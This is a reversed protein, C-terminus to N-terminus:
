DDDLTLDIVEIYKDGSRVYNAPTPSSQVARPRKPTNQERSRADAEDFVRAVEPPIDLDIPGYDYRHRARSASKAGKRRSSTAKTTTTTTRKKNPHKSSLRYREAEMLSDMLSIGIRPRTSAAGTGGNDNSHQARLARERRNSAIRMQLASFFRDALGAVGPVSDQGHDKYLTAVRRGDVNREARSLEAWKDSCIASIQEYSLSPYNRLINLGEDNLYYDYGTKRRQGGGEMALATM